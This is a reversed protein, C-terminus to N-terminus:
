RRRGRLRGRRRAWIESSTRNYSAFPPDLKGDPSWAAAGHRGSPRGVQTLALRPPSGDLPASGPPRLPLAGLSNAAFDVGGVRVGFVLAKGDPSFSPRSGFTTM